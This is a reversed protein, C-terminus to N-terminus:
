ATEGAWASLTLAASATRPPGLRLAANAPISDRSIGVAVRTRLTAGAPQKKGPEVGSAGAAPV